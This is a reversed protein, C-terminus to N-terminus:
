GRVEDLARSLRIDVPVGAADPAPPRDRRGPPDVLGAAVLDDLSVAAAAPSLPGLMAVPRGDVTIVIRDGGAARRVVAAM